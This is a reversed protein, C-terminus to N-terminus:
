GAASRSELPDLRSSLRSCALNGAGSAECYAEPIEALGMALPRARGPRLNKSCNTGAGAGLRPRPREVRRTPSDHLGTKEFEPIATSTGAASRVVLRPHDQGLAEPLTRRDAPDEDEQRHGHLHVCLQWGLRPLGQIRETTGLPDNTILWQDPIRALMPRSEVLARLYQMQSAGPLQLAEKWPPTPRPAHGLGRAEEADDAKKPAPPPPPAAGATAPNRYGWVRPRRLHLRGRGRIDGHLRDPARRPTPLRSAGLWAM